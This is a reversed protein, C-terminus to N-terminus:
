RRDFPIVVMGDMAMSESLGNRVRQFDERTCLGVLCLLLVAAVGSWICIVLRDVDGCSATGFRM